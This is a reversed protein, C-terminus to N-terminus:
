SGITSADGTKDDVIEFLLFADDTTEPSSTEIRNKAGNTIEHISCVSVTVFLFLFVLRRMNREMRGVIKPFERV